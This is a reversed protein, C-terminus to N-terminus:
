IKLPVQQQEGARRVDVHIPWLDRDVARYAHLRLRPLMRSVERVFTSGPLKSRLQEDIFPVAAHLTAVLVELKVMVELKAM